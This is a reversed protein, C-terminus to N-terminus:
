SSRRAQGSVLIARVDSGLGKLQRRYVDLRSPSRSGPLWEFRLHGSSEKPQTISRLDESPILLCEEHFRDEDRLWALVTFYTTPSSRFSSARVMVPGKRRARDIAITKIQLGVVGRNQLHLVALESTELDPFPRFLNLDATEALLRM